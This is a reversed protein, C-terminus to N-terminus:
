RPLWFDVDGAAPHPFTAEVSWAHEELLPTVVYRVPEAAPAAAALGNWLVLLWCPAFALRRELRNPM